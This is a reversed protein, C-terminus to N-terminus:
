LRTFRYVGRGDKNQILLLYNGKALTSVDISNAGQTINGSAGAKKGDAGVIVYGAATKENFNVTIQRDCLTPFVSVNKFSPTTRVGQTVKKPTFRYVTGNVPFSNLLTPLSQPGPISDLTPNAPNGSLTFLADWMGNDMDLERVFGAFPGTGFNYYDSAYALRSPGFRLEAINSTEYYWVQMNVSDNMTGYMDLENYLGANAVEVKFIRNPATGTTVYRIPSLSAAGTLAGKDLLDMDTLVFGNVILATDVSAIAGGLISFKNITYTGLKFSFPMPVVFPDDDWIVGNHFTTANTLPQYPQSSTTVTYPQAGATAAALLVATTLLLRLRKM